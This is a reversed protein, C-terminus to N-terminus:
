FADRTKNVIDDVTQKVRLENKRAHKAARQKLHKM